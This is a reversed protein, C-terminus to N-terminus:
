SHNQEIEDLQKNIKHINEQLLKSSAKINKNMTEFKVNAIVISLIIGVSLIIMIYEM